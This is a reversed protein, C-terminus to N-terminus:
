RSVPRRAAYERGRLEAVPVGQQFLANLQRFLALDKEFDGPYSSIRRVLHKRGHEVLAADYQNCAMIRDRISVPVHGTEPRHPTVNQRRYVLDSLSWRLDAGLVLLTEDFQDILGVILCRDLSQMALALDAETVCRHDKRTLRFGLPALEDRGSFIRTMGNDLTLEYHQDFNAYDDLTAAPRRCAAVEYYYGSILRDVPDRLVTIVACPRPLYAEVGSRYHGWIARLKAVDAAPMRGLARTVATEPWTGLTTPVIDAMDVQLFQETEFNRALIHALTMGATKGVHLFLLLRDPVAAEPRMLVDGRHLHSALRDSYQNKQGIAVDRQCLLENREGLAIDRQRLYEDREGIAVDRQRLYEDREGIAIDRQRVYEDREAITIDRQPLYADREAARIEDPSQIKVHPPRRMRLGVISNLRGFLNM